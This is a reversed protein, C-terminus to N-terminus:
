KKSLYLKCIDDFNEYLINFCHNSLYINYSLLFFLILIYIRGSKKVLNVSKIFYNLIKIPLIKNLYFEIKSTDISLLFYIYILAYLFLFQLNNLYDTIKLLDLVSNGSLDFVKYLYEIIPSASSNDNNTSNIISINTLALLIFSNKGIDSSINGSVNKAIIAGAGLGVSGVLIVAKSAANPAKQALKAGAAIAVSMIAADGANNSSNKVQSPVNTQTSATTSSPADTPTSSPIDTPTYSAAEITIYSLFSDCIFPIIYTFCVYILLIAIFFELRSINLLRQFVTLYYNNFIYLRNKYLVVGLIFSLSVKIILFLFSISIFTMINIM